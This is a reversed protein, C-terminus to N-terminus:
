SPQTPQAIAATPRLPEAPVTQSKLYRRREVCVGFTLGVWVGISLEYMRQLGGIHSGGFAWVLLISLGVALQAAAFGINLAMLTRHERRCQWGWLLPAAFEAIGACTSEALHLTTVLSHSTILQCHPDISPACSIPLLADVISDVGVFVFGVFLLKALPVRAFQVFRWVWPALALTLMGAIIDLVQFVAHHPQTRASIESILTGAVSAHPNLFPTLLWDNYLAILVLALTWHQHGIFRWLTRKM